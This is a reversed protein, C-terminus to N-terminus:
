KEFNLIKNIVRKESKNIKIAEDFKNLNSSSKKSLFIFKPKSRVLHIKDKVLFQYHELLQVFVEFNLL